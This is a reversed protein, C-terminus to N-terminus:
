AGKCSPATSISRATPRPTTSASSASGASRATSLQGGVTELDEDIAGPGPGGGECITDCKGAGMSLGVCRASQCEDNATCDQGDAKVQACKSAECYLSTDCEDSTACTGGLGVPAPKAVCTGETENAPIECLQTKCELSNACKGGSDVQPLFIEGCLGSTNALSTCPQEAYGKM